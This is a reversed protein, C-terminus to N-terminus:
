APKLERGLEGELVLWRELDDPTNVNFFPRASEFRVPTAGIARWLRCVGNQGADLARIVAPLLDSRVIACLSHWFGDPSEAVVAPPRKALFAARLARIERHTLGPLDCALVLVGEAREGYHALATEIGGLPGLGARRDAVVGLGLDGYLAPENAFIAVEAIGSAAVAALMREMITVGGPLELLGKPRGNFRSARGGALLAAAIRPRGGDGADEGPRM